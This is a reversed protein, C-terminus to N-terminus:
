LWTPHPSMVGWCIVWAAWGTPVLGLCLRFDLGGARGNFMEASATFPGFARDGPKQDAFVSPAFTAFTIAIVAFAFFFPSAGISKEVLDQDVYKGATPPHPSLTGTTLEMPHDHPSSRHHGAPTCQQM